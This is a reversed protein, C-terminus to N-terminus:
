KNKNNKDKKALYEATKISMPTAIVPGIYRFLIVSSLFPIATKIGNILVNKNKENAYLIDAKKVLNETMKNIPKRLMLGVTLAMVGTYVNNWILPAKREQPIDQSKALFYCQLSQALVMLMPPVTEQLKEYNSVTKIVGGDNITKSKLAWDVYRKVPRSNMVNLPPKIQM